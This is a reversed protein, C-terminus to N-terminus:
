KEKEELTPAPDKQVLLLTGHIEQDKVEEAEAVTCYIGDKSTLAAYAEKAGGGSRKFILIKRDSPLHLEGPAAVLIPAHIVSISQDKEWDKDKEKLILLTDGGTGSTYPGQVLVLAEMKGDHDLDMFNYSYRTTKWDKPPIHFASIVARRIGDNPRVEADLTRDPGQEEPAPEEKPSSGGTLIDLIDKLKKNKQVDDSKLIEGLIVSSMGKWDFSSDNGGKRYAEKLQQFLLDLDKDSIKGEEVAEEASSLTDSKAEAPFSITLAALLAAALAM